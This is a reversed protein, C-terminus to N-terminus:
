MSAAYVTAADNLLHRDTKNAETQGKVGLVGEDRWSRILEVIHGYPHEVAMDFELTYLVLREKQGLLDKLKAVEEPPLKTTEIDKETLLMADLLERSRRHSEEVKLALFLCATTVWQVGHLSAM